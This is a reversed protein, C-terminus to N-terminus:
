DNKVANFYDDMKSLFAILLIIPWLIMCGLLAFSSGLIMAIKNGQVVVDNSKLYSNYCHDPGDIPYFTFDIIKRVLKTLRPYKLDPFLSRRGRIKDLFGFRASLTNNHSGAAIANFLKDISVILNKAYNM